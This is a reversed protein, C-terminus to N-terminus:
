AAGRVPFNQLLRRASAALQSPNNRSLLFRLTFGDNIEPHADLWPAVCEHSLIVDIAPEPECVYSFELSPETFYVSEPEPRGEVVGDFWTALRDLEFTTLCPETFQWSGKPHTVTGAVMLWNSDFGEHMSPFQYGVIDISLEIGAGTFRMADRM